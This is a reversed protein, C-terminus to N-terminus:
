SHMTAWDLLSVAGPGCTEGSNKTWTAPSVANALSMTLVMKARWGWFPVHLHIKTANKYGVTLLGTLYNRRLSRGSAEYSGYSM